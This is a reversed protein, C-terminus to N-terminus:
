RCRKPRIYGFVFLASLSKKTKEAMSLPRVTRRSFGYSIYLCKYAKKDINIYVKKAKPHVIYRPNIYM